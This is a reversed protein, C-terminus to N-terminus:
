QEFIASVENVMAKVSVLGGGSLYWYEPDLYVIGDNQYAKTNETLENEILQKASAEGDQIAAGRDIVFLIDPDQEKVYEFSVSNGHTSVEIGEDVAEFGFVDHIIGFRSNLGYASINGDNALIILAEKGSDVAKENIEAAMAEIESLEAAVEEEKGFIEGLTTMNEKFSDMYRETDVGLFVTPAIDSLEDYADSQRGSILILDPKLSYITEFDPEKLSGINVYADDEFKSLYAPLSTKAVGAVEIGLEDVSDLVGFDFVVVTEPNKKVDTEGLQHNVTITEADDSQNNNNTNQENVNTDNSGNAGNLENNDNNENTAGCAAIVLALMAVIGIIIIRRMRMNINEEIKM